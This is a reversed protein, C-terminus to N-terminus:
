DKTNNEREIDDRILKKIYTVKAPVSNLKAIIDTVDKKSRRVHFQITNERHYKTISAYKSKKAKNDDM